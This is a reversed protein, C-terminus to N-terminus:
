SLFTTADVDVKIGVSGTTKLKSWVSDLTIISVEREESTSNLKNNLKYFGIQSIPHRDHISGKSNTAGLATSVFIHRSDLNLLPHLADRTEILPDIFIYQSRPFYKYLGYSGQHGIGVDILINVDPLVKLGPWGGKNKINRKKDKFM